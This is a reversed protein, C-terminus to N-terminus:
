ARSFRRVAFGIILEGPVYGYTRSDYSVTPNDGLAAISGEPVAEDGLAALETPLRDGPAAAVRKVLLRTDPMRYRVTDSGQHAAEFAQPDQVDPSRFVVVTGTRLAGVGSRRVLLRDGASYTPAMSRGTVTVLLYRRRLLLGAAVGAALVIGAVASGTAWGPMNTMGAMEAM